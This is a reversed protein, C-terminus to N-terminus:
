HARWFPPIKAGDQENENHNAAKIRAERCSQEAQVAPRVPKLLFQTPGNPYATGEIIPPEFTAAVVYDAQGAGFSAMISPQDLHSPAGPEILVWAKALDACNELGLAQVAVANSGPYGGILWPSGLARTELVYMLSPALGTLYLIPSGVKLGAARALAKATTLYDHFSQSLVLKGGGPMPMVATNARLDKVESWPNLIGANIVLATLLQAFVTLSLLMAVGRGRQALPSLFAVVALMWFLADMSGVLWYNLGSGLASLHPLVLFTLALAITTPTQTRLVSGQRYFTAGICTFAPVLFLTSPKIGVPDTGLLAIAITVILMAAFSLSLLLRHRRMLVSLLLAIAALVDIAFQARSTPLRDIRFMLSLEHGDARLIEMASSNVIRTVFGTIGGDIMYATGSLLTLAVLAAGLMLLPSRRRCVAFRLIVVAAIAAATPPRAMFCCWGGVGVLISGVGRHIRGPWDALLLGIMVMLISQSTLSYHTPTRGWLGWSPSFHCLILSAIGASLVASELWGVAWLRRIVLLSLIWGLVMNLTINAMRLVAIDGGVLEYLWHYVFGFLSVSVNIAYLFPNAISLLYFGETKLDLGYSSYYLLRTFLIATTGATLAMLTHDLM